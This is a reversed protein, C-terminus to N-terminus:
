SKNGRDHLDREAQEAEEVTAFPGALEKELEDSVVLWWGAHV